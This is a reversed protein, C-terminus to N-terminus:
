IHLLFYDLGSNKDTKGSKIDYDLNHLKKLISELDSIKYNNELALKVRYPHVKLMSSIDKQMMGRKSLLKTQYILTFQSGLLAIIKIPEENLRRLDDYCEFMKKYDKNMISDTFDFINDKFARASIDNIDDITVIDSKDKYIAMKDIESMIIDVNKGVFNIFYSATKFDIKKNRNKFEQVVFSNLNKEDISAKYIVTSKEKLLKVIKKREDLKDAIVSIIITNDHEKANLYKTLYDLDHEINSSNSTLFLANEGIIIKKENFISMCSADNLLLDIKDNSLDYKIIDSYNTAIKDIEKKILSYNPGYILYTDNM